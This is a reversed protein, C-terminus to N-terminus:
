MATTRKWCTAWVCAAQGTTAGCRENDRGGSVISQGDANVDGHGQRTEAVRGSCHGRNHGLHAEHKENGGSDARREDAIAALSGHHEAVGSSAADWVRSKETRAARYLTRGFKPCQSFFLFSVCLALRKM